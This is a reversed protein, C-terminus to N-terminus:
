LGAKLASTSNSWAWDKVTKNKHFLVTLIKNTDNQHGAFFGVVPIYSVFNNHVTNRQYIWEVDGNGKFTKSYPQGFIQVVQTETTKGKILKQSLTQNSQSKISSSGSSVACGALVFVSLVAMVSLALRKM